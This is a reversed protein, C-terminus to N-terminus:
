PGFSGVCVFPYFDGFSTGSETLPRTQSPVHMLPTGAHHLLQHARHHLETAQAAITHVSREAARGNSM